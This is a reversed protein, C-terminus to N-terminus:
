AKAKSDEYQKVANEIYEELKKKIFSEVLYMINYAGDKFEQTAEQDKEMEAMVRLIENHLEHLENMKKGRKM